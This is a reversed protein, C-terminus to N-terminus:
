RESGQMYRSFSIRWAASGTGSDSMAFGNASSRRTKRTLAGYLEDALVKLQQAMRAFLERKELDTALDSILKCESVDRLLKERHKHMDEM